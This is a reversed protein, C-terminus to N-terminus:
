IKTYIQKICPPPCLTYHLSRSPASFNPTKCLLITFPLYKKCYFLFNFKQLVFIIKFGAFRLNAFWHRAYFCSIKWVKNQLVQMQVLNPTRTHKFINLHQCNKSIKNFLNLNQLNQLLREQWIFFPSCFFAFSLHMLVFM